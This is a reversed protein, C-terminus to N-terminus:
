SNVELDSDPSNALTNTYFYVCYYTQLLLYTSVLKLVLHPLDCCIQVLYKAPIFSTTRGAIHHLDYLVCLM